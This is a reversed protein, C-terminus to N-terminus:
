RQALVKLKSVMDRFQRSAEACSKDDMKETAGAGFAAAFYFARDSGFLRLVNTAIDLATREHKTQQEKPQCQFVQGSTYGFRRLAKDMQEEEDMVQDSQWANALSSTLCLTVIGAATFLRM